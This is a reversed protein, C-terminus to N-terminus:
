RVRLGARRLRMAVSPPTEPGLDVEDPVGRELEALRAALEDPRGVADLEARLSGMRERAAAAASEATRDAEDALRMLELADRRLAEPRPDDAVPPPPDLGVPAELLTDALRERQAALRERQERTRLRAAEVRRRAAEADDRYPATDAGAAEAQEAFDAARQWATVLPGQAVWERELERAMPEVEGAVRHATERVRPAAAIVDDLEAIEHELVEAHRLSERLRELEAATELLHDLDAPQTM